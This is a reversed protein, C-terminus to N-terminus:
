SGSRMATYLSVIGASLRECAADTFGAAAILGNMADGSPFSEISDALYEYASKEGTVTAALRPLVKHLYFRYVGKVRGQPVSFDLVLLHGGPRLIRAMEALAGTWSEMNRLGFAITVVDFEGTRFPLRLADAQVLHRVRKRRAIELMPLCFDAGIVTAKPCAKGLARALDGSGTALDLVRAPKWQQVIRAARRRWFFDLGGSLLHNAADYRRAIAAFLRQVALGKGPAPTASTNGRYEPMRAPM